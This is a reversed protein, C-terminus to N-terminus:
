TTVLIAVNVHSLRLTTTPLVSGTVSGGVSYTNTEGEQLDWSSAHSLEM